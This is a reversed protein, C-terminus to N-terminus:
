LGALAAIQAPEKEYNQQLQELDTGYFHPALVVASSLIHAKMANKAGQVDGTELAELIAQHPTVNHRKWASESRPTPLMVRQLMMTTRVLVPELTPMQSIRFLKLHFNRDIEACGFVDRRLRCEEFQRDLDHLEALQDPVVHKAAETVSTTEMDIRLKLMLMAELVSPDTVFTGQYGRRVVLGFEQLLMLAERITGQSCDYDQALSQETIPSDSTLEGTLIKRKLDQYVADSKRARKGGTVSKAQLDTDEAIQVNM